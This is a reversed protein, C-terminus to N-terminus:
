SPRPRRARLADIREHHEEADIEGRAFREHLIEEPDSRRVRGNRVLTVMLWAVGGWFVLMMLAMVLWWGSGVGGDQWGNDWHM